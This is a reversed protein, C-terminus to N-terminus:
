RKAAKGEDIRVARASTRKAGHMLGGGNARPLPLLAGCVPADAADSARRRRLVLPRVMFSPALAPQLSKRPARGKRGAQM